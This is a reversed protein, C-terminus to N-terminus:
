RNTRRVAERARSTLRGPRGSIRAWLRRGVDGGVEDTLVARLEEPIRQALTRARDLREAPDLGLERAHALWHKEYVEGFRRVGGIHFAATTDSDLRAYPLGTALDYLPALRVTAGAYLLAFNKAHGDPCGALYNFLLADSFRRVDHEPDSSVRRILQALERSSPGGRAEYKESPLRGAAQCLDVQHLRRVSGDDLVRRDFRKVVVSEQDGFDGLTVSATPLELRAALRMTAFEVVAQHRMRAVGPKVIHTSAVSGHPEHWRGDLLALTFKSQAGALSWHEAPMTWGSTDDRLLRLRAAIKQDDVPEYSGTRAQLDPLLHDDAFQVAGACDQGMSALLDFATPPVPRGLSDALDAAWRQRVAADDPLLGELFAEVPKGRHAAANVLLAPTLPHRMAAPDSYTLRLGGRAGREVQAVTTGDLLVHLRDTAM